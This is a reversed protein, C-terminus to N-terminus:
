VDIRVQYSKLLTHLVERALEGVEHGDLNL